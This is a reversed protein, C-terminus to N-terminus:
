KNDLDNQDDDVNEVPSPFPIFETGRGVSCEKKRVMRFQLLRNRRGKLSGRLRIVLRFTEPVSRAVDISSLFTMLLVVDHAADGM